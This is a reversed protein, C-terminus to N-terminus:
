QRDSERKHREKFGEGASEAKKAVLTFFFDNKAEDNEEHSRKAEPKPIKQAAVIAVRRYNNFFGRCRCYAM